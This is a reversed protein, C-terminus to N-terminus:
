LHVFRTWCHPCTIEMGLHPIERLIVVRNCSPCQVGIQGCNSCHGYQHSMLQQGSYGRYVNKAEQFFDNFIGKRKKKDIVDPLRKAWELGGKGMDKMFRMKFGSLMNCNPCHGVFPVAMMTNCHPCRLYKNNKSNQSEDLYFVNNCHACKTLYNGM